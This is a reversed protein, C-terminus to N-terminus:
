YDGEPSIIETGHPGKFTPRQLTRGLYLLAGHGEHTALQCKGSRVPYLLSMLTDNSCVCM